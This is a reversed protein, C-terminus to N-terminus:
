RLPFFRWTVLILTANFLCLSAACGFAWLPGASGATFGLLLPSLTTAIGLITQNIGFGIELRRRPLQEATLSLIIPLGGKSFCGLIGVSLALLPISEASTLGVIALCIMMQSATLSLKRGCRDAIWAVVVKGLLSAAFFMSILFALEQNGLGQSLLLFPLFVYLSSNALGDLFGFACTLSFGKRRLLLYLIEKLPKANVPQRVSRTPTGRERALLLLALGLSFLGAAVSASQWALVAAIAMFAGTIVARGLDGAATFVGMSTTCAEQDSSQATVAFAVPHFVGFGIGALLYVAATLWLGDTLPAILFCGGYLAMCALLLRTGGWCRAAFGAPVALVVSLFLHTSTLLGVHMGTMRLEGAVFPLLLLFSAQFGDNLFHLAYLRLDCRLRRALSTTPLLNAM